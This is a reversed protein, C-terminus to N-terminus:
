NFRCENLYLIEDSVYFKFHLFSIPFLFFEGAEAIEQDDAPTQTRRWLLRSDSSRFRAGIVGDIASCSVLWITNTVLGRFRNSAPSNTVVVNTEISFLKLNRNEGHGVCIRLLRHNIKRNFKISSMILFFCYVFGYCIIRIQVM